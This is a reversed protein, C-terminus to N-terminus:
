RTLSKHLVHVPSQRRVIGPLDYQSDIRKYSESRGKQTSENTSRIVTMKEKASSKKQKESTKKEKTLTKKQKKIVNEDKTRTM